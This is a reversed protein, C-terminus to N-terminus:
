LVAIVVADLIRVEGQDVAADLNKRDGAIIASRDGGYTRSNQAVADAIVAALEDIMDEDYGDVDLATACTGNATEGTTQYTSCDADFDWEYSERCDDGVEYHEDACLNRVGVHAYRGDIIAKAIETYDM